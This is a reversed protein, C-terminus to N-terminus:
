VPLRRRRSCYDITGHGQSERLRGNQLARISLSGFPSRGGCGPCDKDKGNPLFSSDISTAAEKVNLARLHQMAKAFAARLKELDFESQKGLGVLVIRKAPLSGRTYIVSIQSPKAEFDRGGILDGILGNSKTDIHLAEGALEKDEFLALIVAEGETDALKGKSVSIKM